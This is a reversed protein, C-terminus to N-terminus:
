KSHFEKASIEAHMAQRKYVDLHTYSVPYSNIGLWLLKHKIDWGYENPSALFRTVGSDRPLRAFREALLRSATEALSKLDGHAPSLVQEPKFCPWMTGLFFQIRRLDFGHLEVEPSETVILANGYFM